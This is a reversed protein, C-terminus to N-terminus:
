DDWLKSDLNAVGELNNLAEDVVWSLVSFWSGVVSLFVGSEIPYVGSVATSFATFKAGSVAGRGV